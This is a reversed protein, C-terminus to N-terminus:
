VRTEGGLREAADAPDCDDRTLTARAGPKLRRRENRVLFILLAEGDAAASVTEGPLLLDGAEVRRKAGLRGEAAVEGKVKLVLAAPRASLPKRGDDAGLLLAATILLTNMM